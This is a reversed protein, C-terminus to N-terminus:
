KFFKEIIEKKSYQEVEDSFVVGDMTERKNEGAQLGIIKIPFNGYIDKCSEVILGLKVAKMKPIYPLANKAKKVCEFILDIAEDVTWFFRTAEPDTLIIEKGRKMLPIWKTIFSGTSAWVNGYRVVRYKTKKNIISAEEILKEGIKKTCGYIGAIQAAKDTSIFVFLEPFVRLSEQLINVVGIVNTKVCSMVDIEAQGVHKSASLLYVVDVKRMAKQVVWPDAIDGTM